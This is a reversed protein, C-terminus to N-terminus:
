RFTVLEVSLEVPSDAAQFLPRASYYVVTGTIEANFARVTMEKGIWVDKDSGVYDFDLRGPAAAFRLPKDILVREERSM